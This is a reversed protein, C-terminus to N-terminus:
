DGQVVFTVGYGCINMDVVMLVSHDRNYGLAACARCGTGPVPFSLAAM